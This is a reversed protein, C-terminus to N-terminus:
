IISLKFLHRCNGVQYDLDSMVYPNSNTLSRVWTMHKSSLERQSGIPWSTPCFTQGQLLNPVAAVLLSIRLLMKM